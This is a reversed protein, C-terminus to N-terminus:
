PAEESARPEEGRLLGEVREIRLVIDELLERTEPEPDGRLLWEVSRGTIGSIRSLYKYPMTTGAEYDQVSRTSLGLLDALQEQTMGDAERRAQAIRAGIEEAAFQQM